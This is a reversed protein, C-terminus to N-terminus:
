APASAGAVVAGHFVRMWWTGPPFVADRVGARWRELAARYSTRFARVAAAARQWADGQNRGVAFRPNRDIPPEPTTVRATPSVAQARKAGLFGRHQRGMDGHAQAELRALEETVQHRFGDAQAHEIGPPLTIPLTTQEAWKRSKQSLYVKPRSAEITGQGIDGVQTKAGPWEHARRVLGAAVPNALVYAIGEVVAAQTELHVTSTESKDWVFDDWHRLVKTCNAVTLHFDHLFDSLTGRVDTAVIHIHTSMACFAHVEVGHRRAIVALLYLLIQNMAPDPRLLM